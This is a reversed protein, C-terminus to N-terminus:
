TVRDIFARARAIDSHSMHNSAFPEMIERAEALDARLRTIETDKAILMEVIDSGLTNGMTM